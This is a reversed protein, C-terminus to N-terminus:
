IRYETATHQIRLITRCLRRYADEAVDFKWILHTDRLSKSEIETRSIRLLVFGWGIKSRPDIFAKVQEGKSLQLTVDAGLDYFVVQEPNERRRNLYWHASCTIAAFMMFMTNAAFSLQRSYLVFLM